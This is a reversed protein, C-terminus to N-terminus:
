TLANYKPNESHRCVVIPSESFRHLFKFRCAVRDIARNLRYSVPVKPPHFFGVPYMEVIQLGAGEALEEMQEISMVNFIGQPNKRRHRWHLLKTWPSGLSHHNNFVLYGDEALLEALAEIAASRLEPEANLFFRFATILNFKRPKLINETAIDTEIIETRELKEGAIALMSGSVDVGTSTKVRDELLSTIRGTGCAFDLLHVDKGAFYKELIWLLIERERSWLFRDWAQTEYHREYEVGKATYKHSDRYSM